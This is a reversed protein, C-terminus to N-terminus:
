KIFFKLIMDAFETRDWQHFIVYEEGCPRFAKNSHFKPKELLFSQKVGEGTLCFSDSNPYHVFVSRSPMHQVVFNMTAQDTCSPRASCNTWMLFAFDCASKKQAMMVGGNVVPWGSFNCLDEQSAIQLTMQDRMNFESKFHEFGECSLHVKDDQCFEFPYRQILVDRSDTVLVMDFDFDEMFEWYSRWRQTFFAKNKRKVDVVKFGCSEIQSRRNFDMGDTLCVLSSNGALSSASLFYVQYLPWNEDSINSAYTLFLNM